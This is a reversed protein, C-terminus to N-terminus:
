LDACDRGMDVIQDWSLRKENYSTAMARMVQQLDTETAGFQRAADAHRRSEATVRDTLIGPEMKVALLANAAACFVRVEKETLPQQQSHATGTSGLLAVVLFAIRWANM